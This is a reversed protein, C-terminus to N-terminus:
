TCMNRNTNEDVDYWEFSAEGGTARKKRFETTVAVIMM